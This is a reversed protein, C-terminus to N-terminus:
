RHRDAVTDPDIASTREDSESEMPDAPRNGSAVKSKHVEERDIRVFGPFEFSLLVSGKCPGVTVWGVVDGFAVRVRQGSKRGVQMKTRKAM